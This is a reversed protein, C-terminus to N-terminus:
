RMAEVIEFLHSSASPGPTPMCHTWHFLTFARVSRYPTQTVLGVPHRGLRNRTLTRNCQKDSVDPFTTGPTKLAKLRIDSFKPDSTFTSTSTFDSPMVATSYSTDFISVVLLNSRAGTSGAQLQFQIYIRNHRASSLAVRSRQYTSHYLLSIQASLINTCKPLGRALAKGTNPSPMIVAVDFLSRRNPTSVGFGKPKPNLPTPTSRQGAQAFRGRPTSDNAM